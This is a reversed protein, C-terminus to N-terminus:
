IMLLPRRVRHNIAARHSQLPDRLLLSMLSPAILHLGLVTVSFHGKQIDEKASDNAGMRLKNQM